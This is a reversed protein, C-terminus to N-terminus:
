EPLKKLMFKLQTSCFFSCLVSDSDVGVMERTEKRRRRRRKREVFEKMTRKKKRRRTTEKKKWGAATSPFDNEYHVRGGREGGKQLHTTYRFVSGKRHRLSFLLFPSSSSSTVSIHHHDQFLSSSAPQAKKLPFSCM